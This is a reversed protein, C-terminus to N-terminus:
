FTNFVSVLRGIEDGSKVELYPAVYSDGKETAEEMATTLKRIPSDIGRATFLYVILGLIAGFFAQEVFVRWYLAALARELVDTSVDVTVAGITQGNFVVTAAFRQHTRADDVESQAMIRGDRNRITVRIVNIQRAVNAALMELNGYDYGAILSAAGSATANAGSQGAKGILESLSARESQVRIVGIVASTVLVGVMVYGMLKSGLGFRLDSEEVLDPSRMWIGLESIPKEPSLQLGRRPCPHRPEGTGRDARVWGYGTFYRSQLLDIRSRGPSARTWDLM